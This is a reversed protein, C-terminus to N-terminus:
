KKQIRHKQPQITLETVNVHDGCSLVYSITDAIDEPFLCAAEDATFDANRYLNTQTMDPLLTTVKINNKRAEEFLSNAFSLLGAKTAGYACGYTNNKKATVSSLFIIHGSKRQKMFSLFETTILIPAELNTRILQQIDSPKLTEQLGYLGIGASHILIDPSPQPMRNSIDKLTKALVKTDTIDCSFRHFNEPYSLSEDFTRGIGFIEYSERSLRLATALGIGSSAGTLLVTKM